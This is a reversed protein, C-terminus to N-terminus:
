SMGLSVLCMGGKLNNTYFDSLRYIDERNDERGSGRGGM